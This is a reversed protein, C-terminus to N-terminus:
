NDQQRTEMSEMEQQELQMRLEGFYPSTFMADNENMRRNREQIEFVVRDQRISIRNGGYFWMYVFPVVILIAFLGGISCAVILLTYKFATRKPYCFMESKCYSPKPGDAAVNIDFPGEHSPLEFSIGGNSQPKSQMTKEGIYSLKVDDLQFPSIHVETHYIFVGPFTSPSRWRILTRNENVDAKFGPCEKTLRMATNSIAYVLKYRPPGTDTSLTVNLDIATNTESTIAVGNHRTKGNHLVRLNTIDQHGRLRALRWQISLQQASRSSITFRQQVIALCDQQLDIHVSLGCIHQTTQDGPLSSRNASCPSEKEKSSTTALPQGLALFVYTLLLTIFISPIM